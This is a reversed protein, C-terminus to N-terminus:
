IYIHYKVLIQIDMVNLLNGKLCVSDTKFYIYSERLLVKTIDKVPLSDFVQM